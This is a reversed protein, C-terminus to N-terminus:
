RLYDSVFLNPKQGSQGSFFDAYIQTHRRNIRKVSQAIRKACKGQRGKRRQALCINKSRKEM